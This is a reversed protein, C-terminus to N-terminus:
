TWVSDPGGSTNPIDNFNVGPFRKELIASQQFSILTAYDRANLIAKAKTEGRVVGM